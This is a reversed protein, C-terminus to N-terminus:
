LRDKYKFPSLDKIAMLVRARFSIYIGSDRGKVRESRALGFYRQLPIM